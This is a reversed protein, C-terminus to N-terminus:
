LLLAGYNDMVKILFVDKEMTTCCVNGCLLNPGYLLFLFLGFQKHDATSNLTYIRLELRDFFLAWCWAWALIDKEISHSLDHLGVLKGERAEAAQGGSQVFHLGVPDLGLVLPPWWINKM